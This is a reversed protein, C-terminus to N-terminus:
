RGMEVPPAWDPQIIQTYLNPYKQIVSDWMFNKLIFKQLNAGMEKLQAPHSLLETLGQQLGEVSAPVVRGGGVTVIENFGCRDTLLVPKGARGAELAVLSMVDRRSPIVLLEAAHYAQSKDVGDLYGVFHVREAVNHKVSLQKLGALMGEDPGAIVLHYTPFDDKIRGFARVLLDPGKIPNLRGMFLLLPTEPLGYKHRFARVDGSLDGDSNIGNPIISVQVAEVGYSQFHPIEDSTTAIHGSARRILNRGVTWNYFWKLLKSRGYIPLAGAPCVVYPKHLRAAIFYVLANLFTWHNMLHIIDAEAVLNKIQHYSFRPLYFRKVLCPLAVVTVGPLGKIREPTLGLDTTLITCSLGAKALFRSMQYTREATGGGQALDLVMNVNLIKM